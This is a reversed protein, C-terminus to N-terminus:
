RLMVARFELTTAGLADATSNKGPPADPRPALTRSM